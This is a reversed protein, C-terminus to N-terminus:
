LSKVFFNLHNLLLEDYSFQTLVRWNDRSMDSNSILWNRLALSTDLPNPLLGTNFRLLDFILKWISARWLYILNYISSSSINHNFIIDLKLVIIIVTLWIKVVMALDSFVKVLNWTM